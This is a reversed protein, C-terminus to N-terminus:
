KLTILWVMKFLLNANGTAQQLTSVSNAAIAQQDKLKNIRVLADSVEGVANLVSQSFQLVNKERDIQAVKYNTKLRKHDFL